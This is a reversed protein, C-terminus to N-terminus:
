AQIKSRTRLPHQVVCLWAAVRGPHQLNVLNVVWCFVLIHSKKRPLPAAPEIWDGLSAISCSRRQM